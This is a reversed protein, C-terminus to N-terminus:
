TSNDRNKVSIIRHILIYETFYIQTHSPLSVLISIFNSRCIKHLDQFLVPVTDTEKSAVVKKEQMLYPWGLSFFQMYTNLVDCFWSYHFDSSPHTHSNYTRLDKLLM